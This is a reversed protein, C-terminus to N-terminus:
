PPPLWGDATWFESAAPVLLTPNSGDLRLAWLGASSDAGAAAAQIALLHTGDHSLATNRRWAFHDAPRTLLRVGDRPLGTPGSAISDSIPASYLDLLGDAGATRYLVTQGNRALGLWEVPRGTRTTAQITLPFGLDSAPVGTIRIGDGLHLAAASLPATSDGSISEAGSFAGNTGSGLNLLFPAQGPWDILFAPSGNPGLPLLGTRISATTTAANGIVRLGFAHAGARSRAVLRETPADGASTQVQYIIGNGTPSFGAQSVLGIETQIGFLPTGGANALMLQTRPEGSPTPQAPVGLLLRGQQTDAALVPAPISTLTHTALDYYRWAHGSVWWFGSSDARFRVADAKPEDAPALPTRHTRGSDLDVVILEHRGPPWPYFQYVTYVAWRSDPSIGHVAANPPAPFRQRNSGDAEASWLGADAGHPVHYIVRGALSRAAALRNHVEPYYPDATALQRLAVAADGWANDQVARDAATVYSQLTASFHTTDRLRTPADNLDGAIHFNTIASSWQHDTLNSLGRQYAVQRRDHDGWWASFVILGILLPGLLLGLRTGWRQRGTWGRGAPRAPVATTPSANGDFPEGCEM